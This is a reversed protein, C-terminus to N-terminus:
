LESIKAHIGLTERLSPINFQIKSAKNKLKAHEVLHFCTQIEQNSNVDLDKPDSQTIM